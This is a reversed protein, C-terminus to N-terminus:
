QRTETSPANQFFSTANELIDNYVNELIVSAQEDDDIEALNLNYQMVAYAGAFFALKMERRQHDSADRHVVMMNFQNWSDTMPKEKM